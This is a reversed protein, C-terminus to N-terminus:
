EREKSYGKLVLQRCDIGTSLACREDLMSFSEMRLDDMRPADTMM